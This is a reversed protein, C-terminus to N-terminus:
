TRCNVTNERGIASNEMVQNGFEPVQRPGVCESLTTDGRTPLSDHNYSCFLMVHLRLVAYLVSIKSFTSYLVESYM